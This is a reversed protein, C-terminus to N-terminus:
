FKKSNVFKVYNRTNKPVKYFIIQFLNKKKVVRQFKKSIKWIKKGRYPHYTGLLKFM